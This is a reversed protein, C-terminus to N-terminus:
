KRLRQFSRTFAGGPPSRIEISACPGAVRPMFWNSYRPFTMRSVIPPLSVVRLVIEPLTKARLLNGSWYALSRASGDSIGEITESVIRQCVGSACM